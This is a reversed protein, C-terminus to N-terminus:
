PKGAAVANVLRAMTARPWPWNGLAALSRRDIDVVLVKPKGQPLDRVQLDGLLVADIGRERIISFWDHPAMLQLAVFILYALAGGLIGPRNRRVQRLM